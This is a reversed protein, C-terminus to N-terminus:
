PLGMEKTLGIGHAMVIARCRAGSAIKDPTYFTVSCKLGKTEFCTRRQM